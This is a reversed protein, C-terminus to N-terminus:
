YSEIKLILMCTLAMTFVPNTKNKELFPTNMQAYSSFESGALILKAAELEGLYAFTPMDGKSIIDQDMM